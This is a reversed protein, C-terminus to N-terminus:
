RSAALYKEHSGYHQDPYNFAIQGPSIAGMFATSPDAGDLASKLREIDRHVADKDSSSWRGSATPSCWTPWRGAHRVAAHGPEPLGGCRRGPVGVPRRVGFVAREVYTSFGTKSMEGDSVVDIGVERQKAVIEGVASGIRAELAARM